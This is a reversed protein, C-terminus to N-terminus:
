AKLKELKEVEARHADIVDDLGSESRYKVDSSVELRAKALALIGPICRPDTYPHDARSRRAPSCKAGGCFRNYYGSPAFVGDCCRCNAVHGGQQEGVAHLRAEETFPCVVGHQKDAPAGCGDCPGGVQEARVAAILADLGDRLDGSEDGYYLCKYLATEVDSAERDPNETDSAM